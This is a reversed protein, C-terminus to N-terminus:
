SFGEVLAIKLLVWGVGSSDIRLCPLAARQVRALSFTGGPGRVLDKGGVPRAGVCAASHPGRDHM